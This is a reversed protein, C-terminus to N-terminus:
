AAIFHKSNSIVLTFRGDDSVLSPLSHHNSQNIHGTFEKALWLMAEKRSEIAVMDSTESPYTVLEITHTQWNNVGKIDTIGVPNSYGGQNMDKT